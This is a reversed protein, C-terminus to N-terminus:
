QRKVFYYGKTTETTAKLCQNCKAHPMASAFHISTVATQTDTQGKGCEWALAHIRIYTPPITPTGQLQASNLPNVILARTENSCCCLASRSIHALAQVQV